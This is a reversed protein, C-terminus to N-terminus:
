KVDECRVAREAKVGQYFGFRFVEAALTILDHRYADIFDLTQEVTVAYNLPVKGEIAKATGVADKVRAM